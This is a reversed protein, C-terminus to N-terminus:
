KRGPPFLYYYAIGSYRGRHRNGDGHEWTLRMSKHFPYAAPLHFRYCCGTDTRHGRKSAPSFPVRVGHMPLAQLDGLGWAFSFFDETGTGVISPVTEGDIFWSDDSEVDGPHDVVVGVVHGVGRADLVVINKGQPANSVDCRRVHFLCDDALPPRSSWRFRAAIEVAIAGTSRVSIRARRRFPMPLRCYYERDACGLWLGRVDISYDPAAFFAGLPASVQPRQEEDWTMDLWLSGALRRRAALSDDDPKIRLRIERLTGAGAHDLLVATKKKGLVVSVAHSKGSEKEAPPWPSKGANQWMSQVGALARLEQQDLEWSFAKVPVEPSCIRYALQYFFLLHRRGEWTRWGYKEDPDRPVVVVKCSKRFGIPVYSYSAQRDAFGCRGVLPAVFPKRKGTFFDNMDMHIVPKEQDDLYVLLDFNADEPRGKRYICHFRDICGAGQVDLLVYRRGPEERVFNGYDRPSGVLGTSARYTRWPKVRSVSATDLLERLSGVPAPSQSWAANCILIIALATAAFRIPKTIHYGRHINRPRDIPTIRRSRSSRDTQPTPGIM